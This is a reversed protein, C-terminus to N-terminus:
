WREIGRLAWTARIAIGSAFEFAGARIRPRNGREEFLPVHPGGPGPAFAGGVEVFPGLRLQTGDPLDVAWTAAGYALVGILWPRTREGDREPRVARGSEFTALPEAFPQVGVELGLHGRTVLYGILPGVRIRLIGDRGGVRRGALRIAAGAVLGRPTEARMAVTGGGGAFVDAGEPRGPGLITGLEVGLGIRPSAAPRRRTSGGGGRSGPPAQSSGAGAAERAPEESAAKSKAAPAAVPEERGEEIGLLLHAATMAALRAPEDGAGPVVTREYHLGDPTTVGVYIPSPGELVVRALPESGVPATEGTYRVDRGALRLAMEGRLRVEDFGRASVVLRSLEDRKAARTSGATAAEQAEAEGEPDPGREGVDAGGALALALVYLAVMLRGM